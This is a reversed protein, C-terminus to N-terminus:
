SAGLYVSIVDERERVEQPLGTCLLRGKNMVTLRHALGFVVNMDHETLVVTLQEREWIERILNVTASTEDSSMGATPEDLLLVSCGRTLAMAIELRKRDGQSIEDARKEAIGGLNFRVLAEEVQDRRLVSSKPRWWVGSQRERIMLVTELNQRATMQYFVRAVQFTKIVGLQARKPASLRTIDRGHLVVRGADAAHEGAIVGFLTSKGAGNPGIVAHIEARGISLTTESLAINSGYAKTVDYLELAPTSASM